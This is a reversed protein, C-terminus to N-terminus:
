RWVRVPVNDRTGEPTPCHPAHLNLGFCLFSLIAATLMRSMNCAPTWKPCWVRKQFGLIRGKMKPARLLIWM